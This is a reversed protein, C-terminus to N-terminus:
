APSPAMRRAVAFVRRFPFLVGAPTRPYADALAAAYPDIFAALEHEDTLIDLVPRLGTAAVWTLVPNEDEAEPDLVHLYTTEWADVDCGLRSLYRLYTAPEGVAPLDLAAGLEGAREHHEATERMLRHSPADFNGPVQLALWGGPALAEVWADFLDLHGPVWQLTSSTVVVDPAQGLSTPDWERLDAQVWEVRGAPDLERAAELMAESSDVGVVRAEPWLEALTLTPPGHGCGLDVVVAPDDTRVQSVLDAFPRSRQAAYRGYATPDWSAHERM